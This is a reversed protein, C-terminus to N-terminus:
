VAPRKFKHGWFDGEYKGPLWVSDDIRRAGTGYEVLFGSPSALYFSIMHDNSHRGLTAALEEGQRELRDMCRGVMDIDEVELMFHHLVAPPGSKGRIRADLLALSHHRPNVHMFVVRQGGDSVRFGLTDIYFSKAADFDATLVVVHGLGMDGLFQNSTVFRTGNPSLFPEATAVTAGYFFELRTGTPDRCVLVEEVGREIALATDYAHEIGGQDLDDAVGRLDKANTVEWGCFALGGEGPEVSIRWAREDMRLRLCENSSDPTVAVGLVNSAFGKWEDIDPATLGMYGLAAIRTM